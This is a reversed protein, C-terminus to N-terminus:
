AHFVKLGNFEYILDICIDRHGGKQQSYLRINGSHKMYYNGSSPNPKDSQSETTRKIGRQADVIAGKTGDLKHYKIHHRRPEGNM